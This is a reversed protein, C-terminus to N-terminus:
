PLTTPFPTGPVPVTPLPPVTGLPPRVPGAPPYVSPPVGTGPAAVNAAPPIGGTVSPEPVAGFGNSLTPPPTPGVTGVPPAVVAPPIGPIARGLITAALLDESTAAYGVYPPVPIPAASPPEVLPPV